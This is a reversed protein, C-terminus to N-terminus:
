AEAEGGVGAGVGVLGLHVEVEVADAAALEGALASVTMRRAGVSARPVRVGGAPDPPPCCGGRAGTLVGVAAQADWDARGSASSPDVLARRGGQSRWIGCCRGTGEGKVRRAVIAGHFRPAYAEVPVVVHFAVGAHIVCALRARGQAEADDGVVDTRPAVNAEGADFTESGLEVDLKLGAGVLEAGLM